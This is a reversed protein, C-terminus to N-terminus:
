PVTTAALIARITVSPVFRMRGTMTTDPTAIVHTLILLESVLRQVHTVSRPVPDGARSVVIIVRRAPIVRITMMTGLRIVYM